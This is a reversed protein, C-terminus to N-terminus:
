RKKLQETRYNSFVYHTKKQSTHCSFCETKPDTVLRKRTDGQFAEFGWNATESFRYSDREMAGILKRKGEVISNGQETAELLDFVLVAGNSYPEDRWMAQLAKDNAYIHHLGGFQEYLPHGKQILMSKVRTWEQYGEPYSVRYKVEEGLGATGALIFVLILRITLGIGQATAM